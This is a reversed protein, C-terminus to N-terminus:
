RHNEAMFKLPGSGSPHGTPKCPQEGSPLHTWIHSKPNPLDSHPRSFGATQESGSM